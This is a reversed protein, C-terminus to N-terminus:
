KPTVNAVKQWERMPPAKAYLPLPTFGNARIQMRRQSIADRMTSTM